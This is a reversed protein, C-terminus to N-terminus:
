KMFDKTNTITAGRKEVENLFDKRWQVFDPAGAGPPNPVPASADEFFVCKKIFENNGQKDFYDIADMATWRLCHSGAWGVWLVYDAQAASQVVNVNMQTEPRTPDVVDAKFASYHETFANQGKTIWNIWRGTTECFNGYAEMLPQYVNNGWTGIECHVPWLTLPCRGNRELAETYLLAWKYSPMTVGDFVGVPFRPIVIQEQVDKNSVVTFPPPSSGDKMKWATHHSCDNKHHSDLSPNITIAHGSNKAKETLRNIMNAVSIAEQDAGAVYLAGQRKGGNPTPYSDPENGSACFDNQGDIVFLDIRM